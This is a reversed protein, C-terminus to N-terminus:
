TATIVLDDEAVAGSSGMLRCEVRHGLRRGLLIPDVRVVHMRALTLVITNGVASGLTITRAADITQNIHADIWASATGAHTPQEVEITVAIGPDDVTGRGLNRVVGLGETGLSLSETIETQVRGDITVKSIHGFQAATPNWTFPVYGTAAACVPPVERLPDAGVFAAAAPATYRALGNYFISAPQRAPIEIRWGSRAGALTYQLGGRHYRMGVSGVKAPSQDDSGEAGIAAPRYTWTTAAFTAAWGSAILLDHWPPVIAATLDESKGRLEQRCSWSMHRGGLYNVRQRANFAGQVARSYGEQNEVNATFDWLILGDAPVHGAVTGYTTEATLTVSQQRSDM